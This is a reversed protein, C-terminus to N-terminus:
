EENRWILSHRKISYNTKLLINAIQLIEKKTASNHLRETIQEILVARSLIVRTTKKKTKTTM